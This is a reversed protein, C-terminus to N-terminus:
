YIYVNKKLTKMKKLAVIRKTNIHEGKYVTAFTGEGLVEMLRYKGVIHQM